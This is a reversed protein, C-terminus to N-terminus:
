GAPLPRASRSGKSPPPLSPPDLAEPRPSRVGALGAGGAAPTCADRSGYRVLSPPDTRGDARPLCSAKFFRRQKPDKLVKNTLHQKYIQRHYVKEEITGATILRYVTVERKQGIRWARERAQADTSPNWDPDYLLVRDAGTLNVGLGGVHTTLLFVTIHPLDNFDDILRMRTAVPTTGDMRRYPLNLSMVLDELIDLMQQTQSFVLAKHGQAAWLGLVRSVVVLKGSREVAGYDPNDGRSVRELLDPHNVIKRLVDIGALAERKGDLIAAVDKSALYARYADRQCDTLSVFLVQETKRPLNIDVDAKMRRLLYPSIIDRLVM